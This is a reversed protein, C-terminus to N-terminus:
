GDMYLAMWNANEMALDDVKVQHTGHIGTLHNRAEEKETMYIYIYIYM